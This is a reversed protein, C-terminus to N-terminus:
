IHILSLSVRKTADEGGARTTTTKVSGSPEVVGERPVRLDPARELWMKAAENGLRVQLATPAPAPTIRRGRLRVASALAKLGEVAVAPDAAYDVGRSSTTTAGAGPIGPVGSVTSRGTEQEAGRKLVRAIELFSLRVWHDLHAEEKEDQFAYAPRALATLSEFWALMDVRPMTASTAAARISPSSDEEDGYFFIMSM